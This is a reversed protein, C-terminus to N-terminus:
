RRKFALLVSWPTLRCDDAPGRCIEEPQRFVIDGEPTPVPRPHEALNAVMTLLGAEFTWAVSVIGDGAALVKGAHGRAGHLLPVVVRRRTELLLRTYALMSQGEASAAVSRDLKSSIFTEPENPDPIEGIRDDNDRFGALDSFEKRRGDRVAKALEGKLDTFFNFSRREGYEEGMFMLPIQPALLLVAMMARTREPGALDVLREGFARNGVQDHNQIFNVFATPPLHASRVGRPKGERKSMEGQYIFGEALARALKGYRDRGFDGYYGETENTAIVHVAHHFDDNWEATYLPIAGDPGREHLRTINRNDETHLHIPRRSSARIRTAIEDLIHVGSEDDGIADIADFRLGDINYEEIWFLANDIFFDRVPRKEYAIAAGWPTADEPHFFDGAYSPLYNGEPGFHNYVVDLFVMLGEAHAADIFAKMDDPTGYAPHPAYLLTGDYGWGRRGEFTAVPMLEVATFGLAALEPLREAAARFTGEETFAGVHMEYIVTEEWPRGPWDPLRWRYTGPDTLLSLGHVDSRQARSAPDPVVMGNDLRFGYCDGPGVGELETRFWGDDSREMPHDRDAIHLRVNSQEPAWLAFRARGSATLEAGWSKQFIRQVPHSHPSAAMNM